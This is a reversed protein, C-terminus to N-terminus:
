KGAKILQFCRLINMCTLLILYECIIMCRRRSEGPMGENSATCFRSTKTDCYYFIKTMIDNQKNITTIDISNELNYKRKRRLFKRM